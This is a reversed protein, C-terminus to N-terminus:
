GNSKHEHHREIKHKVARELKHGVQTIADYMDRSTHEVALPQFGSIRAEVVVRKDEGGKGANSDHLHVEVRTVQREHIHLAHAVTKNIHETIAETSHIEAGNIQILM